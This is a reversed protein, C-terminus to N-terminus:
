TISFFTSDHVLDDGLETAIVTGSTKLLVGSQKLFRSM